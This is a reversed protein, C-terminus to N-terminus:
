ALEDEEKDPQYQQHAGEQGKGHDNLIVRTQFGSLSDIQKNLVVTTQLDSPLLDIHDKPQVVVKVSHNGKWCRFHYEFSLDSNAKERANVSVINKDIMKKETSDSIPGVSTDDNREKFLLSFNKTQAIIVKEPSIFDVDKDKSKHLSLKVIDPESSSDLSNDCSVNLNEISRLLGVDPVETQSHIDSFEGRNKSILGAPTNHMEYYEHPMLSLESNSDTRAHHVKHLGRKGYGTVTASAKDEGTKRTKYAALVSNEISTPETLCTLVKNIKYNNSILSQLTQKVTLNKHYMIPLNKNAEVGIHENIYRKKNKQKLEVFDRILQNYGGGECTQNLKNQKEKNKKLIVEWNDKKEDSNLNVPIFNKIINKEIM